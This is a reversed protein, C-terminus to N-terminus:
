QNFGRVQPYKKILEEKTLIFDKYLCYGMFSAVFFKCDKYRDDDMASLEDYLVRSYPKYNALLCIFDIDNEIGIGSLEDNVFLKELGGVLGLLHKQHLITLMDKAVEKVYETQGKFRLYDDYHKKLSAGSEKNGTKISNAGQKVEIIVMQVKRKTHGMHNWRFAVIDARGDLQSDAWEVDAIFFDNDEANVSQNNEYVIRQQYEKEGLHNKVDIQFKDVLSKAKYIYTDLEAMNPTPYAGKSYNADLGDIDGNEKIELIRGGRYYLMVSDGRMEFDLTPDCVALETIRAFKGNEKFDALFEPSLSRKKM